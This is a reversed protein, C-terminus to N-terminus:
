YDLSKGYVRETTVHVCGRREEIGLISNGTNALSQLFANLENAPVTQQTIVPERETLFNISHAATHILRSMAAADGSNLASDIEGLADKVKQILPRLTARNLLLLDRIFAPDSQLVRTASRFSGAALTLKSECDSAEISVKGLAIALAHPLASILSVSEDHWTVDCLQVRAGLMTIIQVLPVIRNIEPPERAILIWEAHSFLQPDSSAFGRGHTGAMPHGPIFYRGKSGSPWVLTGDKYSAVDTITPTSTAADTMTILEQLVIKNASLSVCVFIISCSDILSQLETTTIVGSRQALDLTSLNNDIGVVPIGHAILGLAISGGIQGLGIIGVKLM